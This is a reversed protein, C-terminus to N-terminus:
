DQVPPTQLASQPITCATALRCLIQLQPLFGESGGSPPGGGRSVCPSAKIRQLSGFRLYLNEAKVAHVCPLHYSVVRLLM